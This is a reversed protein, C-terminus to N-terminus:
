LKQALVLARNDLKMGTGVLKSEMRSNARNPVKSMHTTYYTVGNFLGWANDGKSSMEIRIASLLDNLKRDFQKSDKEVNNANLLTLAFDKAQSQKVKKTSLKNAITYFGREDEEIRQLQRVIGDVRQEIKSSHYVGYSLDRSISTFMNKCSMLMNTYGFRLSNKGDHGNLITIYRKAQDEISGELNLDMQPLELQIYVQRGGNFEGGKAVRLNDNQSGLLYALEVLSDNQYPVYRNGVVALVAGNDSRVLASHSDIPTETETLIPTKDVRWDLGTEKLSNIITNQSKFFDM